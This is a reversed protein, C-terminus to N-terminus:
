KYPQLILTVTANAITQATDTSMKVQILDNKEQWLNLTAAAITLDQLAASGETAIVVDAVVDATKTANIITVVNADNSSNGCFQAGVIKCRFPLAFVAVEELATAAAVDIPGVTLRVYKSANSQNWSTRRSAPM